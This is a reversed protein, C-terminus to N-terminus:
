LKTDEVKRVKFGHRPAHIRLKGKGGEGLERELVIENVDLKVLVGRDKHKYGTEVPWIQVEDGKELGSGVTIEAQWVTDNPTSSPAPCDSILSLVEPGSLSKRTNATAAAKFAKEFRAIYGFLLPFQEASILGPPLANKLTTLWHFPWIATYIQTLKAERL